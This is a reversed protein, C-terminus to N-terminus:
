ECVTEEKGAGMQKSIHRKRASGAGVHRKGPSGGEARPNGDRQPHLSPDKNALSASALPKPFPYSKPMKVMKITFIAMMDNLSEVYMYM